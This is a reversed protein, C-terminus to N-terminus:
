GSIIKLRKVVDQSYIKGGYFSGVGMGVLLSGLLISLAITPSGLFLIFKQFLSIELIMFGIGISIFILLPYLVNEEVSNNKNKKPKIKALPILVSLV